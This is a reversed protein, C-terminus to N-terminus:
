GIAWGGSSACGIDRFAARADRNDNLLSSAYGAIAAIRQAGYPANRAQFAGDRRLCVLPFLAGTPHKRRNDM